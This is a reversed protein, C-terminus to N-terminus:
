KIPKLVRSVYVKGDQTVEMGLSTLINTTKQASKSLKRTPSCMSHLQVEIGLAHCLRLVVTIQRLATRGVVHSGGLMQSLTALSVGSEKQLMRYSTGSVAQAFIMTRRIDEATEVVTITTSKTVNPATPM